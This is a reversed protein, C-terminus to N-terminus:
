SKVKPKNLNYRKKTKRYLKHLNFEAGLTFIGDGSLDAYPSIIGLDFLCLIGFNLYWIDNTNTFHNISFKDSGVAFIKIGGYLDLSFHKKYVLRHQMNLGVCLVKIPYLYILESMFRANKFKEAQKEDEETMEYNSWKFRPSVYRLNICSIREFSLLSSHGVQLKWREKSGLQSYFRM